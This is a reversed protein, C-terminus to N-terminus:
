MTPDPLPRGAPWAVCPLLVMRLTSLSTEAIQVRFFQTYKTAIGNRMQPPFQSVNQGPMHAISLIQNMQSAAAGSMYEQARQGLWTSGDALTYLYGITENPLMTATSVVRDIRVVQMSRDIPPMLVRPVPRPSDLCTGSELTQQSPSGLQALPVPTSITQGPAAQAAMLASLILPALM